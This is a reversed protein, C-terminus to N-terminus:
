EGDGVRRIEILYELWMAIAYACVGLFFGLAFAVVTM